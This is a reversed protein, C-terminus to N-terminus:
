QHSVESFGKFLHKGVVSGVAYEDLGGAYALEAVNYACYLIDVGMVHLQVAKGGYHVRLLAFHVVLIETFEEVILYSICAANYEAVCRSKGLLLYALCYAYHLLEVCGCRNDGCFPLLEGSCLKHVCHSLLVCEIVLQLLEKLLSLMMMVVMAMVVFMVVVMVIIVILMLVVVIMTRVAGAATVIVVKVVFMFMLVIVLMFMMMVMPMFMFVVVVVTRIAGAATMVVIMLMMVVVGILHECAPAPLSGIGIGLLLYGRDEATESVSLLVAHYEAGLAYNGALVTLPYM